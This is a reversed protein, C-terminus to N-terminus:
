DQRLTTVPNSAAARRAPTWAALTAVCLMVSVAVLWLRFDFAETDFLFVRLAQVAFATLLVGGGIGIVISILTPQMLLRILTIPPAGLAARIGLEKSRDICLQAVLAYIGMAALLLTLAALSGMLTAQLTASAMEARRRDGLPAIEVFLDPDVSRFASHLAVTAAGLNGREKSLLYLRSPTRNSISTYVAPDVDMTLKQERVDGVVGIVEHPRVSGVQPLQQGVAARTGGLYKDAFSKNVVVYDGAGADSLRFTRGALLPIGLVEFFGDSVINDVVTARRGDALTVPSRSFRQTLPLNFAVAVQRSGRAAEATRRLENLLTQMAAVDRTYKTPINFEATLVGSDSFGVPQNALRWFSTVALTACAMLALVVAAQLALLAHRMRRTGRTMSGVGVSKLPNSVARGQWRLLPIATVVGGVVFALAAACLSEVWGMAATEMRRIGVPALAVFLAVAWHAVALGVVATAVGVFASEALVQRVLHATSAGLATRIAHEGSRRIALAMMIGTANFVAVLLVLAGAVLLLRAFPANAGYLDDHLAILRVATPKPTLSLESAVDQALPLLRQEAVSPSVDTRLRGILLRNNIRYVGFGEGAVGDTIPRYVDIGGTFYTQVDLGDPVIGVITAPQSLSGAVFTVRRGIVGLDADFDQRWLRESIIAVEPAAAPADAKEFLRGAVPKVGLVDFLDTTVHVADLRATQTGTNLFLPVDFQYSAIAQLAQQREKWVPYANPALAGDDRGTDVLVRVLQEPNRVPLPRWWSANAVVVVASALGLAFGM